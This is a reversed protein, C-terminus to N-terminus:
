SIKKNWKGDVPASAAIPHFDKFYRDFEVWIGLNDFKKDKNEIAMENASYIYDLLARWQPLPMMVVDKYVSDFDLPNLRFLILWNANSRIRAPIM